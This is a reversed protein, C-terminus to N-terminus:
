FMELKLQGFITREAAVFYEAWSGIEFRQGTTADTANGNANAFAFNDGYGSSEYKENFLNEISLSISLNGIDAFNRVRLLFSASSVMYPNISLDRDNFLEMYQRGVFRNRLTVRYKESNYDVVLNGLYDPFGPVKKNKYDFNYGDVNKVFKKIKNSNYSFNGSLSIADSTKVAGSLEIGSHISKDINISSILNDVWAYSIIENKFDMWFLNLGFSMTEKQYNLGLELDLVQESEFTPDGFLFTTDTGSVITDAKLSPFLSPDSAKYIAGDTPARSAIAINVFGNLNEKLLYNFGIRPSFFFYDITYDYGAFAGLKTQDFEYRQHRVQATINTSLKSSLRRHEEVFFSSVYKKGFYEYYKLSKDLPSKLYEAKVVEGWHESDFYYFSGGITRTGKDHEMILKPNWGIQSKEVWQQRVLNGSTSDSIGLLNHELYSRDTKLQEYYGDGKIYYFTNFLTTKDSIRYKNHLHYHPQNFNDTENVYSLANSRRNKEIDSRGAGYYALHMKIPGGYAYFETTMNKDIRGAAFYYAWGEYWSNERYGGSKQRSFRGEFAWLGDVLGSSYSISQKSLQSVKKNDSSYEGYGTLLTVIRPQQFISTVINISGGFSADGYLSNGVGRQIQIDSVNAAFDPLDVFYTAHDEPDNLPVGNIYTAIRKDDFGRIKVYSYGLLGGGDSYSYLNPTTSILLPFEAITYDRNIDDTSFNEFAVPSIGIEARSSSILVDKSRYYATKLVVIEPLEELLFQQPEYGVASLTVRSINQDYYLLAVGNSDTITGIGTINTVVSIGQIPNNEQDVVKCSLEFKEAFVITPFLLAFLILFYKM